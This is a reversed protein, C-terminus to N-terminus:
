KLAHGGLFIDIDTLPRARQPNKLKYLEVRTLKMSAWRSALGHAYIVANTNHNNLVGV